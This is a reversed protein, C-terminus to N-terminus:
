IRATGTVAGTCRRNRCLFGISGYIEHAWVRQRPMRQPDGVNLFGKGSKGSDLGPAEQFYMELGAADVMYWLGAQADATVFATVDIMTDPYVMTDQFVLGKRVYPKSADGKNVEAATIFLDNRVTDNYLDYSERDCIAILKSGKSVDGQQEIDNYCGRLMRLGNSGMATVNRYQNYWGNISNAALGHVQNTQAAPLAFELLGRNTTGLKSAYTADGNLHFMKGALGPADGMVFQRALLQKLESLAYQPTRKLLDTVGEVSHGAEMLEQEMIDYSYTFSVLGEEITVTSSRRGGPIFEDGVDHVTITGPGEPTLTARISPHQLLKKNGAEVIKDFAPHFTLFTEESDKVMKQLAITAVDISYAM